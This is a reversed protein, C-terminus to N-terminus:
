RNSSYNTGNWEQTTIIEASISHPNNYDDPNISWAILRKPCVLELTIPTAAISTSESHRYQIDLQVMYKGPSSCNLGFAFREFEGPQLTFFDADPYTITETYEIDKGTLLVDPFVRIMGPAGCQIFNIHVIDPIDEKSLITVRLENSIEIWSQENSINEITAFVYFNTWAIQSSSFNKNLMFIDLLSSQAEEINDFNVESPLVYEPCFIGADFSVLRNPM